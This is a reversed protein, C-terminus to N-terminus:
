RLWINRDRSNEDATLSMLYSSITMVTTGAVGSVLIKAIKYM